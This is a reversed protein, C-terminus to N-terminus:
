ADPLIPLALVCWLPSVVDIPPLLLVMPKLNPWWYWGCHWQDAGEGELARCGEGGVEDGPVHRRRQRLWGVLWDQPLPVEGRTVGKRAEDMVVKVPSCTGEGGRRKKRWAKMRKRRREKGRHTPDHAAQHTHEYAIYNTVLGM